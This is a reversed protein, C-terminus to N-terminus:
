SEFAARLCRLSQTAITEPGDEFNFVEVSVFGAYGVSKLAAAIPHFDMAGFGPGKLNPDNAHFHAFHPWSARIIEPIPASESAMAKVDLIIRAAPSNLQSAFAITEAATNLFNTERPALPELCWTVNRDEATKLAPALTEAAWARAQEISVGSPINRQQPSGLVLVKGGLDACCDALARLYESTRNRVAPDSHTLHLGETKALLWHLGCIELNARRATDRLRAREPASIETVARALTFPALEIGDYGAGAAFQMADAIDWGQFIENCIAFKL